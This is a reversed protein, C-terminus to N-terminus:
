RHNSFSRENIEGNPCYETKCFSRNSVNFWIWIQCTGVCCLMPSVHWIYVTLIVFRVYNDQYGGAGPICVLPIFSVLQSKFWQIMQFWQIINYSYRFACFSYAPYWWYLSCSNIYLHWRIICNSIARKIKCLKIIRAHTNMVIINFLCSTWAVIFVIYINLIVLGKTLGISEWGLPVTIRFAKGHRFMTTNSDICSIYIDAVTKLCWKFSGNCVTRHRVRIYQPWGCNLTDESILLIIVNIINHSGIMDMTYQPTWMNQHICMMNCDGIRNWPVARAWSDM